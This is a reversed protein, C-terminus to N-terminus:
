KLQYIKWLELYESLVNYVYTAVEEKDWFTWKKKRLIETYKVVIDDSPAKIAVFREKFLTMLRIIEKDKEILTESIPEIVFPTLYDAYNNVECLKSNNLTYTSRLSLIPTIYRDWTSQLLQINKVKNWPTEDWFCTNETIFLYTRDWNTIQITNGNIVKLDSNIKNLLDNWWLNINSESKILRERSHLLAKYEERFFNYENILRSLKSQLVKQWRSLERRCLLADSGSCRFNTSYNESEIIALEIKSQLDKINKIVQEELQITYDDDYM